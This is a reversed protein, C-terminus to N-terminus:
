WYEFITMGSRLRFGKMLEGNAWSWTWVVALPKSLGAGHPWQRGMVGLSRGELGRHGLWQQEERLEGLM